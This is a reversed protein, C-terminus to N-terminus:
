ASWQQVKTMRLWQQSVTNWCHGRNGNNCFLSKLNNNCKDSTLTACYHSEVIVESGGTTCCRTRVNPVLTGMIECCNGQDHANGTEKSVHSLVYLFVYATRRERLLTFFVHFHFWSLQWQQTHCSATRYQISRRTNIGQPRTNSLSTLVLLM